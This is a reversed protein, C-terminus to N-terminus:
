SALVVTRSPRSSGQAPERTLMFGRVAGATVPPLDFVASVRKSGDPNMLGLSIIDRSTVLWVQYTEKIPIEPLGAAIIVVGRQRSWLAQGTAHPARRQGILDFRQSDPAVLVGIMREVGAAHALADTRAQRATREVSAIRQEADRRTLQVEREAATGRASADRLTRAIWFSAALVAILLLGALLAPVLRRGHPRVIPPANPQADATAREKLLAAAERVDRGAKELDHAVREDFAEIRAEARAVAQQAARVASAYADLIHRARQEFETVRDASAALAERTADAASRRAAEGSAALERLMAAGREVLAALELELRRVREHSQQHARLAAEFEHLQADFQELRGDLPPM